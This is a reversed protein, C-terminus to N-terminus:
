KTELLFSYWSYKKPPLSPRHTCSVNGGELTKFDPTSLRRSGEPETWAQLPIANNKVVVAVVVVVVIMTM